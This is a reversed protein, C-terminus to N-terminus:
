HSLAEDQAPPDMVLWAGLLVAILDAIGGDGGLDFPDDRDFLRGRFYDRDEEEFLAFFFNIVDAVQTIDGDIAEYASRYMAFQAPTPPYAIVTREDHEFTVSGQAIRPEHHEATVFKKM